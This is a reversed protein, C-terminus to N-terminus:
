PSVDQTDDNCAEHLGRNTSDPVYMHVLPPPKEEANQQPMKPFIQLQSGYAVLSETKFHM